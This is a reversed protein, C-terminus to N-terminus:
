TGGAPCEEDCEHERIEVEEDVESGRGLKSKGLRALDSRDLLGAKTLEMLKSELAAQLEASLEAIQEPTLEVGEPIQLSDPAISAKELLEKPVMGQLQNMAIERLAEQLSEQTAEGSEKSDSGADALGEKASEIVEARERAREALQSEFRDIAEFAAEARGEKALEELRDLRRELDAEAKEDLNVIEELTALKEQLRQVAAEAFRSSSNAESKPLPVFLALLAFAVAPAIRTASIRWPLAPLPPADELIARARGSWRPDRQAQATLLTGTAGCRVDLWAAAGGESIRRRRARVWSIAPALLALLLPLAARAGTELEFGRLLLAGVAGVTLFIASLLAGEALFDASFARARLARVSRDLDLTREPDATPAM